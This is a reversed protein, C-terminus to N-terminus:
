SVTAVSLQQSHFETNLYLDILSAHRYAIHGSGRDYDLDRARSHRFYIQGNECAIEEGM